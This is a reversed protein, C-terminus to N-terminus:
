AQDEREVWEAGIVGPFCEQKYSKVYNYNAPVEDTAVKDFFQLYVRGTSSSKHPETITIVEVPEDRFTKVIHGVEVLDGIQHDGHQQTYTLKM